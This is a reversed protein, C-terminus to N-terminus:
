ERLPKTFSGAKHKRKDECITTGLVRAQSQRTFCSQVKKAERRLLLSCASFFDMKEVSKGYEITVITKHFQLCSKSTYPRRRVSIDAETSVKCLSSVQGNSNKTVSYLKERNGKM